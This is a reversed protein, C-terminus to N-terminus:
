QLVAGGKVMGEEEVEGSGVWWSTYGVERLWVEVRIALGKVRLPVKEIVRM